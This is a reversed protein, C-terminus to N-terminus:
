GWEKALDTMEINIEKILELKWEKSWRKIQKERKIALEIQNHIEYFLLDHANYKKTFISGAGSKHEKVRRELDNTVGTYLVTRNRNSLIYVYAYNLNM